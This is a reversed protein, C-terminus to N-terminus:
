SNPPNQPWPLTSLAPCVERWSSRYLVLNQRIRRSRAWPWLAWCKIPTLLFVWIGLSHCLRAPVSLFGRIIARRVPFHGPSDGCPSGRPLPHQRSSLSHRTSGHGRTCSLHRTLNTLLREPLLAQASQRVRNGLSRCCRGRGRQVRTWLQQEIWGPDTSAQPGFVFM